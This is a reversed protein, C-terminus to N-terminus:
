KEFIKKHVGSFRHKQPNVIFPSEETPPVFDKFIPEVPPESLTVHEPLKASNTTIPLIICAVRSNMEALIGDALKGFEEMSTSPVASEIDPYISLQPYLAATSPSKRKSVKRPSSKTRRPLKAPMSENWAPNYVVTEFSSEQDLGPTKMRYPSGAPDVNERDQVDDYVSANLAAIL